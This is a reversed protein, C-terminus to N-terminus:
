TIMMDCNIRYDDCTYRKLESYTLNSVITQGKFLCDYTSTFNGDKKFTLYTVYDIMLTTNEESGDQFKINLKDEGNTRYVSFEKDGTGTIIEGFIGTHDALTNYHQSVYAGAREKDALYTATFCMNSKEYGNSKLISITIRSEEGDEFVFSGGSAMPSVKDHGIDHSLIEPHGTIIYTLCLLGLLFLVILYVSLPISIKVKHKM